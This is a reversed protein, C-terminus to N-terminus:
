LKRGSNTNKGDFFVKLLIDFISKINGYFAGEM